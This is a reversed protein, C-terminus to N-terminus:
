KEERRERASRVCLDVDEFVVGAGGDPGGGSLEGDGGDQARADDDRPARGPTAAPGAAADATARGAGGRGEGAAVHEGPIAAPASVTIARGGRYVV